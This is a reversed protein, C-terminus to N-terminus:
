GCLCRPLSPQSVAGRQLARMKGNFWPSRNLLAPSRNFLTSAPGGSVAVQQPTPHRPGLFDRGDNIDDSAVSADDRVFSKPRPHISVRPPPASHNADCFAPSPPNLGRLDPPPAFILTNSPYTTALAQSLMHPNKLDFCVSAPSPDRLKGSRFWMYIECSIDTTDRAWGVGIIQM